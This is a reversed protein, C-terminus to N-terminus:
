LINHPSLNYLELKNKIKHKFVIQASMNSM